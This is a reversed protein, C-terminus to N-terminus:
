FWVALVPCRFKLGSCSFWVFPLASNFYDKFAELESKSVLLVLAQVATKIQLTHRIWVSM